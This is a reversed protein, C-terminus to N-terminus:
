SEQRSHISEVVFHVCSSSSYDKLNFIKNKLAESLDNENFSAEVQKSLFRLHPVLLRFGNATYDDAKTDVIFQKLSLISVRVVEFRQTEWHREILRQTVDRVVQHMRVYIEGNDEELLLLSNKRIRLGIVDKDNFEGETNM